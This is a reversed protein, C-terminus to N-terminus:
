VPWRGRISTEGQRPHHEPPRRTAPLGSNRPCRSSSSKSFSHQGKSDIKQFGHEHEVTDKEDKQHEHLQRLLLRAHALGKAAGRGIREEAGTGSLTRVLTVLHPATIKKTREMASVMMPVKFDVPEAPRRCCNICCFLGTTSFATGAGAGVGVLGILRVTGFTGACAGAGAGAGAGVVGAFQNERM